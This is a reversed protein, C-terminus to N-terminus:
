VWVDLVGALTEPWRGDIVDVHGVGPVIVLQSGAIRENYWRGHSPPCHRDNEGFWLVTPAVVEAPDVDWDGGWALNDIVYGDPQDIVAALNEAWIARYEADHILAGDFEGFFADVRAEDDLEALASLDRQASEHMGAWAAAADGADLLALYGRDEPNKDPPELLRWPGIGGVVGVARVRTPDAIATAVAFPGGGSAGIVAYRELGLGAALAATEQGTRLLSPETSATSGGYGPRNVTLLRVGASDAAEHAWHGLVRTSPTGPHLIVARGDPDGGDWYEIIRGDGLVL